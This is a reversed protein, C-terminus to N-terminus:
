SIPAEFEYCYDEVLIGTSSSASLDSCLSSVNVEINARNVEISCYKEFKWFCCIKLTCCHSVLSSMAKVSIVSILFSTSILNPALFRNLKPELIPCSLSCSFSIFTYIMCSTSSFTLPTLSFISVLLFSINYCIKCIFYSMLVFHSYFASSSVLSIYLTCNSFNM